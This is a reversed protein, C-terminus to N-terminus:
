MSVPGSPWIKSIKNQAEQQIQWGKPYMTCVHRVSGSSGQNLDMGSVTATTAIFDCGSEFQMLKWIFETVSKQEESDDTLRDALPSVLDLVGWQILLSANETASTLYEMMKLLMQLSFDTSLSSETRGLMDILKHIEDDRLVNHTFDGYVPTIYLFLARTILRLTVNPSQLLLLLAQSYKHYVYQSRINSACQFLIKICFLVTQSLM